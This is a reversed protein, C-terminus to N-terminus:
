MWWTSKAKDPYARICEDDMYNGVSLKKLNELKRPLWKHSSEVVITKGRADTITVLYGYYKEGHVDTYYEDLAIVVERPSRFEFLRGEQESPNFTTQQRDLLIYKSRRWQKGVVFMEVQLEHGYDGTSTQKLQVGYHGNEEPPRWWGPIDYFGGSFDVQRFKKRFNIDFEPPNALEAYGIDEASLRDKSIKLVKGKSSELVVKGAFINVFKAELTQGDALTWVRIEEKGSDKPVSPELEEVPSDVARPSTDYDCFVPGNTLCIMECEPLSKYIVDLMDHSLAATKFVPLVPYGRVTREYEVGEEEVALYFGSYSGHDGILIEMDVAEGPELTIRDSVVAKTNLMYYKWTDASDSEWLNGFLAQFFLANYRGTYDAWTTALVLAGDVRVALFEDAAGWFRFAIGNTHSVPCVLQGKYHVALLAGPTDKEGFSLSMTSSRSIPVLLNTAYLNRSSRYYRAFVSTKWGSRLFKYVVSRWTTGSTDLGSIPRGRRDRKFDYFTGTFDNGISKGAGFLTTGSLDPMMDFGGVMDGLGEGMGSMEPLQIDPMNARNVKTVIRTTPKPRSTKKIKVKPKKLKMKPREVAKPPTFEVEKKKVVTFVVLMGALLFLAAHIAVSLLVASPMGKTIKGQKRNRKM